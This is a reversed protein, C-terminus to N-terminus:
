ENELLEKTRVKYAEVDPQDFPDVQLLRGTLITAIMMTQMFYGLEYPSLVQMQWTVYQRAREKYAVKTGDLIARQIAAISKGTVMPVLDPFQRTTPVFWESQNIREVFLTFTHQPGGLYLQGMSHLDTSGIAVTPTIGIVSAGDTTTKGLSEGVLQRWWKGLTELESAFLFLNHVFLGRKYADHMFISLQAAENQSIDHHISQQGAAEAGAVLDRPSLGILALPLLGVATFVSYRGGVRPPMALTHYHQTQAAKLYASGEDSIVVVRDAIKGCQTTLLSILIETNAITETTGGSKSISVVVFELPSSISNILTAIGALTAENNTDLTILRPQTHPTMDREHYLARYIAEAGLNSGGIGVLFVFRLEKTGLRASLEEVAAIVGDDTPANVSAEAEDYGGTEIVHQV